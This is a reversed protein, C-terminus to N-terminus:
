DNVSLDPMFAAGMVSAGLLGAIISTTMLASAGAEEEIGFTYDSKTM